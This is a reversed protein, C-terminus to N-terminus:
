FITGGCVVFGDADYVVLSQGPTPAKVKQFFEAKLVGNDFSVRCPMSQGTSRIKASLDDLGDLSAASVWNVDDAEVFSKDTSEEFGVIVQNKEPDLGIVYLPRPAAIGLGKRQGITYNWFGLHKGLVKGELDVILGEKPEADLLDSYPGGYFDQSESQHEEHFGQAVDIERVQTKEYGGLPFLIGSLQEQTLRYLFYSQDKKLDVAKRLCWRGNKEEIRAYHGTAVKDFKLGLEEAKKVLEGFKVKRNCIVCPNPTRGHLYESRFNDLVERRFADSCDIFAVEVGLKEALAGVKAMQKERDPSFCSNADSAKMQGYESWVMMNVGVVDHGQKRLLYTSVASDIGGSLGLLIRM